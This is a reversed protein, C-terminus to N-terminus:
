LLKARQKSASVFKKILLEGQSAMNRSVAECAILYDARLDDDIYITIGKKKPKSMELDENTKLV